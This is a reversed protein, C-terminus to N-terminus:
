LFSDEVAQIIDDVNVPGMKHQLSQIINFYGLDLVNLDSSNPPLNFLEINLGLRETEEKYLPNAPHLRPRANDQQIKINHLLDLQDNSGFAFM